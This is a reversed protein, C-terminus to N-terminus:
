PWVLGLVEEAKFFSTFRTLLYIKQQFLGSTLDTLNIHEIYFM